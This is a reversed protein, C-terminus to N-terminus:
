FVFGLYPSPESLLRPESAADGYLGSEDEFSEGPFDSAAQTLVGVLDAADNDEGILGM